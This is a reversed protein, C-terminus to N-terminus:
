HEIIIIITIHMLNRQSDNYVGGKFINLYKYRKQKLLPYIGYNERCNATIM